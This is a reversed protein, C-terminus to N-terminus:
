PLGTGRNFTTANLLVEGAVSCNNSHTYKSTCTAVSVHVGLYINDHPYLESSTCTTAVLMYNDESLGVTYM